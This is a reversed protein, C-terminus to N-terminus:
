RLSGPELSSKAAASPSGRVYEAQGLHKASDELISVARVAVTVPPDWSEDIVRSWDADTVTDLWAM